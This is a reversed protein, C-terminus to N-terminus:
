LAGHKLSNVVDENSRLTPNRCVSRRLCVSLVAPKHSGWVAHIYAHSPTHTLSLTLSLSHFFFFVKSDGSVKAGPSVRTFPHPRCFPRESFCCCFFPPLFYIKKGRRLKGGVPLRNKDIERGREVVRCPTGSESIRPNHNWPLSFYCAQFM